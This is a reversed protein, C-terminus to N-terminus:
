NEIPKRENINVDMENVANYNKKNQVPLSHLNMENQNKDLIINKFFLFVKKKKM